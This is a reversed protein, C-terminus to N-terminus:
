AAEKEKTEHKEHTSRTFVLIVSSLLLSPFIFNDPGLIVLFVVSSILGTIAPLKYSM